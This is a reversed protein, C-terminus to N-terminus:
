LNEKKKREPLTYKMALGARFHIGPAYYSVGDTGKYMSIDQDLLNYITGNLSIETNNTELLKINAPMKLYSLLENVGTKIPLRGNSYRSHFLNSAEKRFAEYDFEQGYHELM